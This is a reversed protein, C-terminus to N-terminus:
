NFIHNAYDCGLAKYIEAMHIMRKLFSEYDKNEPKCWQVESLASLRALLMYELGKWDTIYESWMCAQVGLIHSKEEDTMEDSLPEYSYVKSM